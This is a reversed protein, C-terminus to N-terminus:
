ARQLYHVLMPMEAPRDDFKVSANEGEIATVTGLGFSQHHVRDDVAFQISGPLEVGCRMCKTTDASVLAYCRPCTKTDGVASSAPQSTSRTPPVPRPPSANGATHLPARSMNAVIQPGVRNVADRVSALGILICGTSFLIASVIQSTSHRSLLGLNEIRGIGSPVSTDAVLGFLLGLGGVIILFIGTGKM